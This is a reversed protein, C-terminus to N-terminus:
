MPCIKVMAFEYNSLKLQDKLMRQFEILAARILKNEWEKCQSNLVVM